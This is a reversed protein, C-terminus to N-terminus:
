ADAIRRGVCKRKNREIDSQLEADAPFVPDIELPYREAAARFKMM